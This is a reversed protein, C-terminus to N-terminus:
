RLHVRDALFSPQTSSLPAGPLFFLSFTVFKTLLGFGQLSETLTGIILGVSVLGAVELM